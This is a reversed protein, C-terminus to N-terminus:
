GVRLGGARRRRDMLGMLGLGTAFMAYSGPEPVAAVSLTRDTYLSGADTGLGPSNGVALGGEYFNTGTPSSRM